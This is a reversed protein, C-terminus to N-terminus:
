SLRYLEYIIIRYHVLQCFEDSFPMIHQHGNRKGASTKIYIFRSNSFITLSCGCNLFFNFCITPAVLIPTTSNLHAFTRVKKTFDKGV